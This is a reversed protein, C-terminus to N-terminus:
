GRSEKVPRLLAALRQKQEDNLPPAMALTKRVYAAIKAEALAAKYPTLDERRRAAHLHALRARELEPDDSIAGV